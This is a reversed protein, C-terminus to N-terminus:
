DLFIHRLRAFLGAREAGPLAKRVYHAATGANVTAGFHCYCIANHLQRDTLEFFRKAEGYSDNELGAERLIPDDFAVTIPSTGSRMVARESGVQYETQHLTSLRRDPDRELLEAWRVLREDRSMTKRPYNQDIEAIVQLEDLAHYRM